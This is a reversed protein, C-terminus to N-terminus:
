IATSNPSPSDASHSEVVRLHEEFIELSRQFLELTQQTESTEWDLRKMREILELQNAVLLRSQSVHQRAQELETEMVAERRDVSGAACVTRQAFMAQVIGLTHPEFDVRRPAPGAHASRGLGM